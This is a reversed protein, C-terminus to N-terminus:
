NKCSKMAEDFDELYFENVVKRIEVVIEETIQLEYENIYKYVINQIENDNYEDLLQVLDQPTNIQLEELISMSESDMIMLRTDTVVTGLIARDNELNWIAVYGFGNLQDKNLPITKIKKDFFAVLQEGLNKIDTSSGIWYNTYVLESGLKNLFEVDTGLIHAKSPYKFGNFLIEFKKLKSVQKKDM